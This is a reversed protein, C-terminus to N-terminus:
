AREPEVILATPTGAPDHLRLYFHGIGALGLMLSPNEGAGPVGCPWNGGRPGGAHRAIGFEAVVRARDSLTRTMDGDGLVEGAYLFLDANGALGHCLSFNRDVASNIAPDLLMDVFRATTDIAIEAEARMTADGTLAFSRLRSFGVGAAGHCWFVPYGPADVPGDAFSRLDPWNRQEPDYWRREYALAKEAAENFRAEGTLRYLELFACAIGGTGHSHGVLDHGGETWGAALPWSWEGTDHRRAKASLADGARVALDQLQGDAWNWRAAFGLLVPIAGALGSVVDSEQTSPDTELLRRALAEGEASLDLRGCLRGVADVAFAIGLSGSYFGLAANQPVTGVLSLAQRAGALAATAYKPDGTAAHLRALFLAIGATGDYLSPGFTRWVAIWEGDVPDISAGGWTCREGDWLADRCLLDGIASAVGLYRGGDASM